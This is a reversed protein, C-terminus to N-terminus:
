SVKGERHAKLYDALAQRREPDDLTEQFAKGSEFRMAATYRADYETRGLTEPRERFPTAETRPEAYMVVEKEMSSKTDVREAQERVLGAIENRLQPPLPHFARGEEGEPITFTNRIEGADNVAGIIHVMWSEQGYLFNVFFTGGMKFSYSKAYKERIARMGKAEQEADVDRVEWKDVKFNVGPYKENRERLWEAVEVPIEETHQLSTGLSIMHLQFVGAGLKFNGYSQERESTCRM